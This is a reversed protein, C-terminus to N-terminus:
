SKVAPGRDAPTAYVSAHREAYTNHGTCKNIYNPCGMVACHGDRWEKHSCERENCNM